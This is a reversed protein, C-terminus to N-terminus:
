MIDWELEPTSKIFKYFENFSETFWSKIIEDSNSNNLLDFLPRDKWILLGFASKKTKFSSEIALQELKAIHPHKTDVFIQTQLKVRSFNIAYLIESYANTNKFVNTKYYAFRDKLSANDQKSIKDFNFVEKFIPESLDIHHKIIEFTKVYNEMAVINDTSITNDQAMKHKKLFNLYDNIIPNYASHKKLEKAIEYWRIQKFNHTTIPKPDSFKTCYILHTKHNKHHIDLAQCYRSLQERGESSNVKNEIFCVNEVGIFVLDIICNPTDLPLAYNVQTDIFYEDNPLKFFAVIDKKIEPYFKLIGAFTETNFDELPVRDSYGNKRYLNYLDQIM